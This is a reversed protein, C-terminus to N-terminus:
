ARLELPPRTSTPAAAHHQGVVEDVFALSERILAGFAGRHSPNDEWYREAIVIREHPRKGPVAASTLREQAVDAPLARPPPKSGLMLWPRTEDSKPLRLAHQPLDAWLSRTWFYGDVNVAQGAELMAVYDERTRRAGGAHVLEAALNRRLVEWLMKQGSDPANWMLLADGLGEVFCNAALLAGMRMGLLVVPLGPHVRQGHDLVTVLDRQWESLTMATFEGTSEGMGRYDFRVVSHGAESLARALRVSVAHSREREAGFAGAMVVLSRPAVPEHRAVYLQASPSDVYEQVEIM